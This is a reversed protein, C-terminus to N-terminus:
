VSCAGRTTALGIVLNRARSSCQAQQCVVRHSRACVVSWLRLHTALTRHLCGTVGNQTRAVIGNRFPFHSLRHPSAPGAHVLAVASRRASPSTAGAKKTDESSTSRSIRAWSARQAAFTSPPSHKRAPPLPPMSSGTSLHVQGGKSSNQTGLLLQSSDNENKAHSSLLSTLTKLM